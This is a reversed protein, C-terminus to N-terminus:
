TLITELQAVDLGLIYKKVQKKFNKEQDRLNKIEIPLKNYIKAAMHMPSLQYIQRNPRQIYFNDNARQRTQRDHVEAVRQGAM